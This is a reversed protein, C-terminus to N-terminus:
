EQGGIQQYEEWDDRVASTRGPYMAIAMMTLYFSIWIALPGLDKCHALPGGGPLQHEVIIFCDMLLLPVIGLVFACSQLHRVEESCHNSAIHRNGASIRLLLAAIAVGVAAIDMAEPQKPFLLKIAYPAVATCLPLLGDWTLLRILWFGYNTHGTSVLRKM